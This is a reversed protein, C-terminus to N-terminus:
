DGILKLLYEETNIDDMKDFFTELENIDITGQWPNFSPNEKIVFSKIRFMRNFDENSDPKYILELLKYDVGRLTLRVSKPKKVILSGNSNRINAMRDIELGLLYLCLERYKLKFNIKIEGNFENFEKPMSIDSFMHEYKILIDILAIHKKIGKSILLQKLRHLNEVNM